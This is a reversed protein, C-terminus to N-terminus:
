SSQTITVILLAVTAVALVVTAVSLVWTARNLSEAANTSAAAIKETSEIQERVLCVRVEAEPASRRNGDAGATSISHLLSNFDSPEPM